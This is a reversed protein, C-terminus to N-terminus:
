WTCTAKACRCWTAGLVQCAGCWVAPHRYGKREDGHSCLRTKSEGFNTDSLHKLGAEQMLTTKLRRWRLVEWELAAIDSIFMEDIIDAPKVAACLRGLLEDYAAADEGELLLPPGFVALRQVQGPVAGIKTKSKSKRSMFAVVRSAVLSDGWSRSRSPLLTGPLARRAGSSAASGERIM